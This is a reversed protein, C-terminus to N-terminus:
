PQKENLLRAVEAWLSPNERNFDELGQIAKSYDFETWTNHAYPSEIKAIQAESLGHPNEIPMGSCGKAVQGVDRNHPVDDPFV